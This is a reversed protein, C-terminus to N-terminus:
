LQILNSHVLIFFSRPRLDITSDPVTARHPGSRELCVDRDLRAREAVQREVIQRLELDASVGAVRNSGSICMEPVKENPIELASARTRVADSTFDQLRVPTMEISEAGFAVAPEAAAGLVIAESGDESKEPPQHTMPNDSAVRADADLQWPVAAPKRFRDEGCRFRFLDESLRIRGM